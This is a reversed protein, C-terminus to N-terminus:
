APARGRLRVSAPAPRLDLGRLAEGAGWGAVLLGRPHARVAEAIRGVTHEDPLRRPAVVDTWPRGDPRGPADVLPEGTPVLPERFPLNVHVPGSPPGAAEAVARSALARWAAGAGPVDSPVGADCHWRVAGGYLGIQDITQGAGTDRLEPPRDATCVILPVRGHSAELVAAHFHAAATGSTCLV